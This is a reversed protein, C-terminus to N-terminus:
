EEAVVLEPLTAGVKWKYTVEATATSNYTDIAENMADVVEANNLATEDAM